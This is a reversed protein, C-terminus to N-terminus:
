AADAAPSRTVAVIRLAELRGSPLEVSVVDGARRGMVARGVPSRASVAGDDGGSAIGNLRYSARRGTREYEVEVTCGLTAVGDAPGDPLVTATRLLEELRAIRADTVVQDDQIHAIEEATDAAVFGRAQRMRDPLEHDRIARLRQLEREYEAFEAAGLVLQPMTADAGVLHAVTEPRARAAAGSQAPKMRVAHELSAAGAM